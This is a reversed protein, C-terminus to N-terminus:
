RFFIRRVDCGYVIIRLEGFVGDERKGRFILDCEVWYRFFEREEGGGKVEGVLVM